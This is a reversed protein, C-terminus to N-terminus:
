HHQLHSLRFNWSPSYGCFIFFTSIFCFSVTAAPMISLAAFWYRITFLLRNRSLWLLILVCFFQDHANFIIANVALYSAISQGIDAFTERKGIFEPKIEPGFVLVPIHERTHDSGPMTPDCGHDATIIAIDGAQMNQEFEALRADFAELAAAYGIVDRRHGYKSDFDVFNTFVLSRDPAQQMATLLTDFLAMNGDATMSQTIGRHAFIDAVKGISIVSGGAAVLRDLLTDEPPPTTLDRRNGTRYFHGISGAFPRAIVRGVQYVNVLERAIECLQYLRELGFGEEHAAIQFVSDASTYVIPKGTLLHEEGLDAIIETGSAHCMGLVGPIKGRKIFEDLLEQPFSNEEQTFYGWDFLAPVGAIEWHGSPTDKGHSIEAAYGYKARIGHINSSLGPVSGGASAEAAAGLGLATLNPLKLHGHRVGMKNAQGAACVDAIHGLTNAGEDGYKYADASEGIGLSDLLLIFVRKM